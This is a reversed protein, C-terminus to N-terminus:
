SSKPKSGCLVCLDCLAFGRGHPMKESLILLIQLIKEIHSHKAAKQYQNQTAFIAFRSGEGM